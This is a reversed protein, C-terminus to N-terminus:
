GERVRTTRRSGSPPLDGSDGGPARPATAGAHGGGAGAAPDALARRAGPADARRHPRAAALRRHAPAPRQLRPRLSLPLARGAPRDGGAGFAGPAAPRGGDRPAAAPLEADGGRADRAADAWSRRAPAHDAPSRGPHG